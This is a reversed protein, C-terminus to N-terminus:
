DNLEKKSKKEEYNCAQLNYIMSFQIEFHVLSLIVSMRDQLRFVLDLPKVSLDSSTNRRKNRRM